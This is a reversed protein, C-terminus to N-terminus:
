VGGRWRNGEKDYDFQDAAGAQGLAVGIRLPKDDNAHDMARVTLAITDQFAKRLRIRDEKVELSRAGPVFGAVGTHTSFLSCNREKWYM